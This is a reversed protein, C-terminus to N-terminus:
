LCSIALYHIHCTTVVLLLGSCGRGSVLAVLLSPDACGLGDYVYLNGAFEQGRLVITFM